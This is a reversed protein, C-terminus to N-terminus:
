RIYRGKPLRITWGEELLGNVLDLIEKDSYETMKDNGITQYCYWFGKVPTKITLSDLQSEIIFPEQPLQSATTYKKM